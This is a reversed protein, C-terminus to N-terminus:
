AVRVIKPTTIRNGHVQGHRQVLERFGYRLFEHLHDPPGLSLWKKALREMAADYNKQSGTHAHCRGEFRRSDGDFRPSIHYLEHVITTLKQAYPLNLFRPLYFTLIYLLERGSEDTVRQIKWKERNRIMTDAGNEFRLPTLSAYMGYSSASRTQAFAYGIRAADIHALEPLRVAMDQVIREVATTFNFGPMRNEGHVRARRVGKRNRSIGESVNKSRRKQQRNREIEYAADTSGSSRFRGKSRGFGSLM